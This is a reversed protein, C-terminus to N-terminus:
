RTTPGVWANSRAMRGGGRWTARGTCGRTAIARSPDAIFREATLDPRHIYGLALGLGGIYLEGEEGVSVQRLHEDLIYVSTNRIPRGIPVPGTGAEVRYQTSYITTETPGYLNWLSSSRELLADAM